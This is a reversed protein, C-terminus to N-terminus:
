SENANGFVYDIGFSGDAAFDRESKGVPNALARTGSKTNADRANGAGAAARRFLRDAEDVNANGVLSTRAFFGELERAVSVADALVGRLRGEVHDAAVKWIRRM